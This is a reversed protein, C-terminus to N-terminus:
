GTYMDVHEHWRGRWERLYAHPRAPNTSYDVFAYSYRTGKGLTSLSLSTVETWTGTNIYERGDEFQKYQPYHTHGM